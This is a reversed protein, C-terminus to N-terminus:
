GRDGWENGKGMSKSYEERLEQITDLLNNLIRDQM